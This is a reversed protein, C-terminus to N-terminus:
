LGLCVLTALNQRMLDGRPVAALFMLTGLNRWLVLGM